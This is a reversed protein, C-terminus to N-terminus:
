YLSTFRVLVMLFLENNDDELIQKHHFLSYHCFSVKPYLSFKLQM